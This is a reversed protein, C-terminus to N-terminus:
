VGLITDKMPKPISDILSKFNSDNSCLHRIVRSKKGNLVSLVKHLSVGYRRHNLTAFGRQISLEKGRSNKIVEYGSDSFESLVKFWFLIDSSEVKFLPKENWFRIRAKRNNEISQGRGNQREEVRTKEKEKLLEVHQEPTLLKHPGIVETFGEPIPLGVRVRSTVGSSFNHIWRIGKLALAVKRIHEDSKKVGRSKLSISKKQGESMTTGKRVGVVVGSSLDVESAKAKFVVGTDLNKYTGIGNLKGNVNSSYVGKTGKNWPKMGSPGEGGDTLNL